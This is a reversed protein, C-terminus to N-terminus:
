SSPTGVMIVIFLEDQEPPDDFYIQKTVRNFDPYVLEGNAAYVQLIFYDDKFNPNVLFSKTNGDGYLLEIKRQTYSDNKLLNRVFVTVFQSLNTVLNCKYQRYPDIEIGTVVYFTFNQVDYILDGPRYTYTNDWFMDEKLIRFGEETDQVYYTFGIKMGNSATGEVEGLLKTLYGPSLTGFQAVIEPPWEQYQNVIWYLRATDKSIFYDGRQYTTSVDHLIKNNLVIGFVEGETVFEIIDYALGIKTGDLESIAILPRWEIEDVYKWVIHTENVSLVVERGAVVGHPEHPCDYTGVVFPDWWPGVQVHPPDEPHMTSWAEEYIDFFSMQTSDDYNSSSSPPSETLPLNDYIDFISYM